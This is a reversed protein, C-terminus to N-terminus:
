QPAHRLDNSLKKLYPLVEVVSECVSESKDMGQMAILKLNAEGISDKAAFGLRRITEDHLSVIDPFDETKFDRVFIRQVTEPSFPMQPEGPRNKWKSKDCQNINGAVKETEDLLLTALLNNSIDKYRDPGNSIRPITSTQTTATNALEPHFFLYVNSICLLTAILLLIRYSTRHRVWKLLNPWHKEVYEIRGAM